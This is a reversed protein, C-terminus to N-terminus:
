INAIGLALTEGLPISSWLSHLPLTDRYTLSQCHGVGFNLGLPYKAVIFWSTFYGKPNFNHLALRWMAFPSMVEPHKTFQQRVQGHTHRTKWILQKLIAGSDKSMDHMGTSCLIGHSPKPFLWVNLLAFEERLRCCM